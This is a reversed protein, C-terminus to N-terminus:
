TATTNKTLKKPMNLVKFVYVISALYVVAIAAPLLYIYYEFNVLISIIAIYTLVVGLRAILTTPVEKLRKAYVMKMVGSIFSPVILLLVWSMHMYNKITLLIFTSIILTWDTFSDIGSGLETRQNMLRASVGDLKDSLTIVAFILLSIKIKANLFYHVFPFILLFRFLTIINPLNVVKNGTMHRIRILYELGSILTLLVAALMVYWSFPL